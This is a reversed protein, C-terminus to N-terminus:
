RGSGLGALGQTLSADLWAGVAWAILVAALASAVLATVRPTM